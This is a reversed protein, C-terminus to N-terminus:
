DHIRLDEVFEIVIGDPDHTYVAKLGKSRGEPFAPVFPSAPTLGASSVKAIVADIDKVRFAIHLAGPDCPRSRVQQTDAPAVYQLLELTHGPAEIYAIRMAAGPVGTVQQYIEGECEIQNRVKFGLVDRYFGVSRELNSVTIGTHATAVIRLDSM